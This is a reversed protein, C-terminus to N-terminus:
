HFIIDFYEKISRKIKKWIEQWSKEKIIKELSYRKAFEFDYDWSMKKFTNDYHDFVKWFKGEEYGYLMLWHDDSINGKHYLGDEELFWLCVSVGLPSFQLAQKLKEIKNQTYFSFVWEHKIKYQELWKKGKRIYYNTMPNPYYYKDWTDIDNSFPLLSEDILGAQKRITEIVKQPSNGQPTTEAMVGIYRESKNIERGYLRKYLTELANLTGYCSCNMSEFGNRTQLEKKPLFLDWQGDPQLVKLPLNFGGFIYDEETIEDRLFGHNQKIKEKEM